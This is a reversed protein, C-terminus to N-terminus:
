KEPEISTTSYRGDRLTYIRSKIKSDLLTTFIYMLGTGLSILGFVQFTRVFGIHETSFGGVFGGIGRGVGFYAAGFIGEITAATTLPSVDKVFTMASILLLSTCFPKFVEFLICFLVLEGIISYGFLRISYLGLAILM